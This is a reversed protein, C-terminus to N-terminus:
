AFKVRKENVAILSSSPVVAMDYSNLSHNDLDDDEEEEETESEMLKDKEPVKELPEAGHTSVVSCKESQIEPIIHELLMQRFSLAGHEEGSLVSVALGLLLVRGDCGAHGVSEDKGSMCVFIRFRQICEIQLSTLM